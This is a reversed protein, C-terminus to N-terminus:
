HHRGSNPQIYFFPARDQAPKGLYKSSGNMVYDGWGVRAEGAVWRGGGGGGGGGGDGGGGGHLQAASAESCEM